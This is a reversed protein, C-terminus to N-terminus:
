VHARGIENTVNPGNLFVSQYPTAVDDYRTGIVTYLVRPVTDGGANLKQMFQSGALDDVCAPCQASILSVAAPSQQLLTAIGYLTTGHNIPTIGVLAHVKTAGGLFRVYYRPLMGGQSHGVIDVQPADTAALVRDVFSALAAAVVAVHAYGDAKYDFAFVCYGNNALLPSGAQWESGIDGGLAPVLVVPYPHTRGPRCAWNNAGLPTPRVTDGFAVGLPFNYIVPYDNSARASAGNVLLCGALVPLAARRVFRWGSPVSALLFARRPGRTPISAM